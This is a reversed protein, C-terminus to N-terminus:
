SARKDALKKQASGRGYGHKRMLKKAAKKGKKRKTNLYIATVQKPPWPM